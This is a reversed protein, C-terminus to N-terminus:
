RLVEAPRLNSTLLVERALVANLLLWTREVRQDCVVEIAQLHAHLVLQM